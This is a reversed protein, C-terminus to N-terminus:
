AKFFQRKTPEWVNTKVGKIHKVLGILLALNMTYFHTVFRL